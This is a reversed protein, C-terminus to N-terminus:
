TAVDGSGWGVQLVRQAEAGWCRRLAMGKLGVADVGEEECATVGSGVGADGGEVNPVSDM